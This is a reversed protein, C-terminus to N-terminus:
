TLKGDWGSIRALLWWFARGKLNCNLIHTHDTDRSDYGNAYLQESIPNESEWEIAWNGGSYSYDQDGFLTRYNTQGNPAFSEIDVFDFLVKGNQRCYECIQENRLNTNGNLGSGDLPGTMYVFTIDPYDTELQNM